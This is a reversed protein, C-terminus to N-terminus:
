VDGFDFNMLKLQESELLGLFLKGSIEFEKPTLSRGRERDEQYLMEQKYAIQLDYNNELKKVQKRLRIVKAIMKSSEEEAKELEEKQRRL